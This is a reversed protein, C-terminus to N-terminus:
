GHRRGVTRRSPMPATLARVLVAARPCATGDRQCEGCRGVHTRVSVLVLADGHAAPQYVVDPIGAVRPLETPQAYSGARSHDAM